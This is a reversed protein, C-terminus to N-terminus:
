TEHLKTNCLPCIDPMTEHFRKEMRNIDNKKGNISAQVGILDLRGTEMENYIAQLQRREEYKELLATVDGYLRTKRRSVAMDRENSLITDSAGQLRKHASLLAEREEYLKLVANLKTEHKTIAEYEEIDTEVNAIDTLVKELQRRSNFITILDDHRGELAELDIEFKDLYEYGELSKKLEYIRDKNSQEQNTLSRIEQQTSKLGADIQELNAIRNFYASVEGPSNSILFPSDLQHQINTEDMNLIEQISEPVDTGFAKFIQEDGELDSRDDEWIRYLNEKGKVRHIQVNELYLRVDTEGGWTSRFSDGGPRNWILWRLARIISTKGCDSAGVIVNVGPDFELDSDKHSQFNLINLARIM